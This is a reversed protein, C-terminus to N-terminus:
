PRGKKMAWLAALFLGLYGFLLFPTTTAM